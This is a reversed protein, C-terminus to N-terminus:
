EKKEKQNMGNMAKELFGPPLNKIMDTAQTMFPQMDKAMGFLEKQQSMLKGAKQTLGELNAGNMIDKLEDLKNSSKNSKKTMGEVYVSRNLAAGLIAVVLAITRNPNLVYMCLGSVVFWGISRWDGISLYAFLNLVAIIVVTYYMMQNDLSGGRKM